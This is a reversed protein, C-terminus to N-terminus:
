SNHLTHFKRLGENIEDDSMNKKQSKPRRQIVEAPPENDNENDLTVKNM